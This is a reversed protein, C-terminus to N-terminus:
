SRFFVNLSLYAFSNVDECTEDLYSRHLDDLDNDDFFSCAAYMQFFDSFRNKVRGGAALRILKLM